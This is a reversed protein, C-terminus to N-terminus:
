SAAESSLSNMEALIAEVIEDPTRGSVDITLTATEAYLSNRRSLVDAVEDVASRGTLAPRASGAAGDAEIRRALLEVPATLWAVPGAARLDSRTSANLVAGGGTALVLRENRLLDVLVDREYRRFAAEGEEAFVHSITRGLRRELEQDADIWPCGLQAALRPAVTSKGCGRYGILSVIM